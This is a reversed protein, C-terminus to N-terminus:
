ERHMEECLTKEGAVARGAPYGSDAGMWDGPPGELVFPFINWRGGTVTLIGLGLFLKGNIRRVEDHMTSVPFSNYPSYVLHFSAHSDFMSPGVYTRNRIIRVTREQCGNGVFYHRLMHLLRDMLAQYLDEHVRPLCTSFTNYGHGQMDTLPEFAKHGWEGWIRYLTFRSIFRNFANGTDLIAARYEGRMECAEPSVLRHFVGILQQRSLKQLDELTIDDRNKQLIDELAMGNYPNPRPRLVLFLSLCIGLFALLSLRARSIIKSIRMFQM